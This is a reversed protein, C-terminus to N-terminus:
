RLLASLNTPDARRKALKQLHFRWYLRVSGYWVASSPVTGCLVTGSRRDSRTQQKEYGLSSPIVREEPGPTPPFARAATM